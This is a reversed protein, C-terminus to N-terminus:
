YDIIDKWVNCNGAQTILLRPDAHSLSERPRLHENLSPPERSTKSSSWGDFVQRSKMRRMILAQEDM